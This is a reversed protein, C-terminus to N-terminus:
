LGPPTFFDILWLGVKQDCGELQVAKQRYQWETGQFYQTKMM